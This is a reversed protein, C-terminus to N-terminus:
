HKDKQKQGRGRKQTLPCPTAITEAFLQKINNFFEKLPGIYYPSQLIKTMRKEQAMGRWMKKMLKNAPM